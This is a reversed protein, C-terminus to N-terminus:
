LIDTIINVSQVGVSLHEFVRGKQQSGEEKGEEEVDEVRRLGRTKQLKQM